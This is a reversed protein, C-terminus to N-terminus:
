KGLCGVIDGFCDIIFDSGADELDRRTGNGYTVGCTYAGASRGMQIDVAADGVVLTDAANWGQAKLIKEVPEPQPKGNVVDDGGVLMDFWGAMGFGNVYEELSSRHRSSAIAMNYGETHLQRLTDIVGMFCQVKLPRKLEDFIRRYTAAYRKGLDPIDPWLVAPIEELRLGISARCVDDTLPPLGMESISAQMTAIILPATDAITGDFDFILNRVKYM